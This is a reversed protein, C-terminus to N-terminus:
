ITSANAKIKRLKESLNNLDSPNISILKLNLAKSLENIKWDARRRGSKNYEPYKPYLPEKEAKINKEFLWNDIFIEDLSLCENGSKALCRIGRSTKLTGNPLVNSSILAKFWSGFKTNIKKNSSSSTNAKIGLDFIIKNSNPIFNCKTVLKNILPIM